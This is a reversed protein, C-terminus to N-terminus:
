SMSTSNERPWPAFDPPWTVTWIHEWGELSSDPLFHLKSYSSSSSVHGHSLGNGELSSSSRCVVVVSFYHQGVFGSNSVMEEEIGM